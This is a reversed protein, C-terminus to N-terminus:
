SVSELLAIYGGPNMRFRVPRGADIDKLSGEPFGIKKLKARTLRAHHNGFKKKLQRRVTIDKVTLIAHDPGDQEAEVFIKEGAGM